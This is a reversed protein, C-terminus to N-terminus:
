PAEPQYHHTEVNMTGHPPTAKAIAQYLTALSVMAEPRTPAVEHARQLAAECDELRGLRGFCRGAELLSCYVEEPNLGPGMGSRQLYRAAALEHEGADRLCQALYYVYRSNGPEELLATELVKADRKYKEPGPQQSRAGDQSTKIVAGDLQVDAWQTSAAPYEHLVGVYSWSLRLNFLRRTIFRCQPNPQAWITYADGTLEGFGDPAEITEDADLVLAYDAKGEALRFAKTRSKGFGEWEIRHFEGPIGELAKRVEVETEDTSGTDAIIWYDIHPRASALCKAIVHAENKVIMTLCVTM